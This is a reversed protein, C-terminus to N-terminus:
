DSGFWNVSGSLGQHYCRQYVYGIVVYVVGSFRDIYNLMGNTWPPSVFARSKRSEVAIRSSDRITIIQSSLRINHTVMIWISCSM